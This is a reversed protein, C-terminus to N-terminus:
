GVFSQFPTLAASVLYCPLPLKIARPFSESEEKKNELYKYWTDCIDCFARMRWLGSQAIHMSEVWFMSQLHLRWLGAEM